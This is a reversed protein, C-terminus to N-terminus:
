KKVQGTALRFMIEKTAMESNTILVNRNTIFVYSLVTNGAEDKLIRANKNQIVGDEWDKNFLYNTEPSLSVGFLLSLDRFMKREWIKMVPFVDDFSRTGLLIFFNGGNSGSGKSMAGMMFRENFISTHIQDLESKLLSIFRQLSIPVNSETLYVGEVGGTKM